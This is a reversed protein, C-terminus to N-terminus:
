HVQTLSQFSKAHEMTAKIDSMSHTHIYNVKLPSMTSQDFLTGEFNM